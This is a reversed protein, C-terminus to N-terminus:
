IFVTMYYYLVLSVPRACSIVEQHAGELNYALTVLISILVISTVTKKHKLIRFIVFFEFCIVFFALEVDVFFRLCFM